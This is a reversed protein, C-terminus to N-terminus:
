KLKYKLMKMLKPYNRYNVKNKHLWMYVDGTTVFTCPYDPMGMRTLILSVFGNPGLMTSCMEVGQNFEDLQDDFVKLAVIFVYPDADHINNKACFFLFKNLTDPPTPMTAYEKLTRIAVISDGTTGIMELKGDSNTKYRYYTHNYVTDLWKHHFPKCTDSFRELKILMQAIEKQSFSLQNQATLNTINCNVIAVILIIFVPRSM